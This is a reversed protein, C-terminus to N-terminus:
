KLMRKEQVLRLPLHRFACCTRCRSRHQVGPKLDIAGARKASTRSRRRDVTNLQLACAQGLESMFKPVPYQTRHELTFLMDSQIHNASIQCRNSAESVGTNIQFRIRPNSGFYNERGASCITGGKRVYTELAKAPGTGVFGAQAVADEPTGPNAEGSLLLPFDWGKQKWLRSVM